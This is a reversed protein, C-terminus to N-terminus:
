IPLFAPSFISLVTQSRKKKFELIVIVGNKAMFVFDKFKDMIKIGDGLNFSVHETPLVKDVEYPLDLIIQLLSLYLQCILKMLIDRNKTNEIAM